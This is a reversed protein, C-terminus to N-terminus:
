PIMQLYKAMGWTVPDYIQDEGWLRAHIVLDHGLLALLLVVALIKNRRRPSSWACWVACAAIARIGVEVIMVYRLTKPLLSYLILMVLSAIGVPEVAARWEPRKWLVPLACLATVVAVPSVIMFDVLYRYYPGSVYPASGTTFLAGHVVDYALLALQKPGGALPLTLGVTLLCGVLIAWLPPKALVGTRRRDVWVLAAGGFLAVIGAERSTAILFTSLAIAPLHWRRPAALREAVFALLLLAYFLQLTDPVPFHSMARLVPATGTLLLALLVAERPMLRRLWFALPLLSLVGALWAILVQPHYEDAPHPWAKMVGAILLLWSWRTPPPFGVWKTRYESVLEPFAALGKQAVLKSWTLYRVADGGYRFKFTHPFPRLLAAAVTLALVAAVFVSRRALLSRSTTPAAPEIM